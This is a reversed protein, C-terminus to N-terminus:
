FLKVLTPGHGVSRINAPSMATFGTVLYACLPSTLM